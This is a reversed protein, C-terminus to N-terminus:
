ILSSAIKGVIEAGLLIKQLTDQTHGTVWLSRQGGTASLAVTFHM